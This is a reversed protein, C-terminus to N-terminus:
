KTGEGDSSRRGARFSRGPDILFRNKLAERGLLMRFGMEDRNTLSIDIEWERELIRIRTRIVSRVEAHGSSSRVTREDVLPAEAPISLLSNRQYPRVEFRVMRRGGRKFHQVKYAHLASSRAGTDIKVKIQNVDLDPLSIWERWGIVWLPEQVSRNM